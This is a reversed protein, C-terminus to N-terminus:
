EELRDRSGRGEKLESIAAELDDVRNMLLTILAMVEEFSEQPTIVRKRGLYKATTLARDLEEASFRSSV